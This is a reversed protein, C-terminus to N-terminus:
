IISVFILFAVFLFVGGVGFLSLSWALWSKSARVWATMQAPTLSGGEPISLRVFPAAGVFGAILVLMGGIAGLIQVALMM